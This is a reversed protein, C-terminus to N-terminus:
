CEDHATLDICAGRATNIIYAGYPLQALTEANLMHYTEPTLPCHLFPSSEM